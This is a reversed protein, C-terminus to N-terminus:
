NCWLVWVRLFEGGCVSSFPIADVFLSVQTVKSLFSIQPYSFFQTQLELDLLVFFVCTGRGM